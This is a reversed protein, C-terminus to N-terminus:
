CITLTIFEQGDRYEVGPMRLIDRFKVWNKIEDYRVTVGETEGQALPRLDDRRTAGVLPGLLLALEKGTM